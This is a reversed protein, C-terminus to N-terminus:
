ANKGELIKLKTRLMTEEKELSHIREIVLTVVNLDDLELTFGMFSRLIQMADFVETGEPM